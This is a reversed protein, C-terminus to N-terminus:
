SLKSGHNIVEKGMCDVIFSTAIYKFITIKRCIYIGNPKLSIYVRSLM